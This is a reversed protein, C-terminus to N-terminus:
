RIEKYVPMFIKNGHDETQAMGIAQYEHGNIKVISLRASLIYSAGLLFLFLVSVSLLIRGNTIEFSREAAAWNEINSMTWGVQPIVEKEMSVIACKQTSGLTRSELVDNANM